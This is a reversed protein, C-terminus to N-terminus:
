EGIKFTDVPTAQIQNASKLPELKAKFGYISDQGRKPPKLIAVFPQYGKQVVKIEHTEYSLHMGTHDKVRSAVLKNDIYIDADALEPTAYVVLWYDKSGCGGFLMLLRILFLSKLLFSRIFSAQVKM